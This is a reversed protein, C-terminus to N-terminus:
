FILRRHYPVEGSSTFFRQYFHGFVYLLPSEHYLIGREAPEERLLIEGLFM